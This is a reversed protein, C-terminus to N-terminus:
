GLAARVQAQAVPGPKAAPPKRQQPRTEERKSQMEASFRSLDAAIVGEVREILLRAAHIADLGQYPGIRYRHLWEEKRLMEENARYSFWHSQPQWLKDLGTLLTVCASLIATLLGSWSVPLERTLYQQLWIKGLENLLPECVVVVPILVSFVIVSSQLSMFQRKSFNARKEYWKLQPRLREELYQNFSAAGPSQPSSQSASM